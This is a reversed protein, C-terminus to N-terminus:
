NNSKGTVSLGHKAASMNLFHLLDKKLQSRSRSDRAIAIASAYTRCLTENLHVHPWLKIFIRGPTFSIYLLGHFEHSYGMVKM